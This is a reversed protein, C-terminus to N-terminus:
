AALREAGAPFAKEAWADLAKATRDTLAVHFRRLDNPDATRALLGRETMAAIWRLATTPPVAAAICLSSVPVRCGEQRAAMLDLLMDWAPDAFLDAPFFAERMRRARLITRFTTPDSM